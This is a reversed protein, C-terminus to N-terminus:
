GFTDFVLEEKLAPALKHIMIQELELDRKKESEWLHVLYAGIKNQLKRSIKHEYM